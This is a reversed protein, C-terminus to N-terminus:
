TSRSVSYSQVCGKVPTVLDSFLLLRDRVPGGRTNTCPEIFMTVRNRMVQPLTAPGKPPILRLVASMGNFMRARKGMGAPVSISSAAANLPNM